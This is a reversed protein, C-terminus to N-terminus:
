HDSLSTGNLHKHNLASRLILLMAVNTFISTCGKGNGKHKAFVTFIGVFVFTHATDMILLDNCSLHVKVM